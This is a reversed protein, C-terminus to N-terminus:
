EDVEHAGCVAGFMDTTSKEFIEGQLPQLHAHIRPHMAAIEEKYIIYQRTDQWVGNTLKSDSIALVLQKVQLAHGGVFIDLVQHFYQRGDRHALTM